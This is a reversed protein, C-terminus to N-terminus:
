VTETTNTGNDDSGAALLFTDLNVIKDALDNDLKDLGLKLVREVADLNTESALDPSLQAVIEDHGARIIRGAEYLVKRVATAPILVGQKEEYKLRALEAEYYEKAARSKNLDNRDPTPPQSTPYHESGRLSGTLNDRDGAPPVENREPKSKGAETRRQAARAAGAKIGSAQSRPDTNAAWQRDAQDSDILGEPTITIRGDRVAYTVAPPSGGPLGTERRHKAYDAKTM